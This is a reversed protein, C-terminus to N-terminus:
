RFKEAIKKILNTTSRGAALKITKIKGGYSSVFDAGVIKHKQWDAGKVLIDPKIAQITNLPTDEQFLVVFDM